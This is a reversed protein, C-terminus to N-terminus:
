TSVHQDGAEPLIATFCTLGDVSSTVDIRGNADTLINHCVYLGLGRGKDPGKTTYFPDFLSTLEAAPIQKGQNSISILINNNKTSIKIKILSNVPSADTANQILNILVQQLRNQAISVFSPLDPLESHIRSETLIGQQVMIRVSSKLVERADIPEAPQNVPRAYDLLDRVLRDIRTTESCAADLLELNTSTGSEKKLLDLYGTLAALPNGIEHAMGAALHGISAMKASQILENQALHLKQNLQELKEIQQITQRRSEQLSERMKDFDEALGAVERPGAPSIEQSLNGTAIQRVSNRLAIIPRVISKNLLYSGFLVLTFGYLFIFLFVIKQASRVSSRIEQLSFKAQVISTVINDRYIPQTILLSDNDPSAFATFFGNTYSVKLRTRHSKIAQNLASKVPWETNPVPRSYIPNGDIDFVALSELSTLNLLNKHASRVQAYFQDSQLPATLFDVMLSIVASDQKIKRELM